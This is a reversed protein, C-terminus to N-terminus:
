SPLKQKNGPVIHKHSEAKSNTTLHKNDQGKKPTPVKRTNSNEKWSGKYPQTTLYISSLNPKTRSYKLKKIQTSQSNQQTYYGPSANTNEQHRCSRQGPEEPKM